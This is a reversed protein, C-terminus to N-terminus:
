ILLVVLSRLGHDIFYLNPLSVITKKFASQALLAFSQM